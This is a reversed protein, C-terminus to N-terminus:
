RATLSVKREVRSFSWHRREPAAPALALIGLGATRFGPQSLLTNGALSALGVLLPSACPLGPDQRGPPREATKLGPKTVGGNM